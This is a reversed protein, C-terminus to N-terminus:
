CDQERKEIKMAIFYNQSGEYYAYLDTVTLGGMRHYNNALMPYVGRCNVTGSLAQFIEPHENETFHALDKEGQNIKALAEEIIDKTGVNVIHSRVIWKLDESKTGAEQIWNQLMLQGTSLQENEPNFDQDKFNSEALIIGQDPLFGCQSVAKQTRPTPSDTKSFIKKDQYKTTTTVGLLKLLSSPWYAASFKVQKESARYHDTWAAYNRDEAPPSNLLAIMKKGMAVADDWTITDSVSPTGRENISKIDPERPTTDAWLDPVGLLRDINATM